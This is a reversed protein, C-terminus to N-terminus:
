CSNRKQKNRSFDEIAADDLVSKDAKSAQDAMEIDDDEFRRNKIAKGNAAPSNGDKKTGMVSKISQSIKRSISVRNVQFLFDFLLSNFRPWALVLAAM